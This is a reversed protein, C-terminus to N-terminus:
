IGIRRSLEATWGNPRAPNSTKLELLLKDHMDAIYGILIDKDSDDIKNGLVLMDIASNVAEEFDPFWYYIPIFDIDYERYRVIEYDVEHIDENRYIIRNEIVRMKTMNPNMGALMRLKVITTYMSSNIDVCMYGIKENIERSEQRRKTKDSTIKDVDNKMDSQSQQELAEIEEKFQPLKNDVYNKNILYFAHDNSKYLNYWGSGFLKAFRRYVPVTLKDYASFRIVGIPNTNFRYNLSMLLKVYVTNQQSDGTLGYGEGISKFAVNEYKIDLESIEKTTLHEAFPIHSMQDVTTYVEYSKNNNDKFVATFGDSNNQTVNIGAAVLEAPTVVKSGFEKMEIINILKM